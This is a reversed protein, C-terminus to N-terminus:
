RPILVRDIVHIIGNDVVLDAQKVAAGDVEVSGVQKGVTLAKGQLTKLSSERAVQEAELKGPVVHYKLISQLTERNEEELLSELTGKPLKAFAEDTPAFVTFPGMESLAEALGAAQVARVLARFSGASVAAEVITPM